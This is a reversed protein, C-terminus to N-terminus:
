NAERDITAEYAQGDFRFHRTNSEYGVVNEATHEDTELVVQEVSSSFYALTNRLGRLRQRMVQEPIIMEEAERTRTLTLTASPPHEGDEYEPSTVIVTAESQRSTVDETPTISVADGRLEVLAASQDAHRGFGVVAAYRGAGLYGITDGASGGYGIAPLAEEPYANLVWTDARGPPLVRCSANHVYPAIHFWQDDVLKYLNWHGCSTEQRSKNIFTFQVQEPLSGQERSPQVYTTTSPGAEHYWATTLDSSLSPLSAGAFRSQQTPGPTDTEWVAIRLDADDAGRFQYVGTPRGKGVGEARGVVAYEGHITEGPDLRVRDPLWPNVGGTLRWYGDSARAVQPPDDVLDHNATPAFVLGVRYTADLSARKTGFSHPIRSVLDGFPPTWEIRFTNSFDNANELTATLIAPHDETATATFEATIAAEDSSYYHPSSLAYTRPATELDIIRTRSRNEPSETSAPTQTSSSTETENPTSTATRTLPASSTQNSNSSPMSCGAVGALGVTALFSRRHM